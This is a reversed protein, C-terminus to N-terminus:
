WNQVEWPLTEKQGALLLATTLAGLILLVRVLSSVWGHRRALAPILWPALLLPALAVLWFSVLPVQSDTSFRGSVMLGPLFGIGAPISGSCDTKTVAAIIAVGLFACGVITAIDMFRASHAYLMVGGGLLFILAQYQAVHASAGPKADGPQEDTHAITEYILWELCSTLVFAPLLWPEDSRLAEPIVFYAVVILALLRPVWLTLHAVLPRASFRNTMVASLGRTLLGVVVLLLAMRPLQHWSPVDPVWPMPTQRYHNGVAIGAIVALASAVPAVWRGLLLVVAYVLTAASAAPFMM